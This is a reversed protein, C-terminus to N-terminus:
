ENSKGSGYYRRLPYNSLGVILWFLVFPHFGDPPPFHAFLHVFSWFSTVALTGGAAWLLSKIFLERQFDDTEEKLYLGNVVIIGVLPISPIAAMGLAAPIPLKGHYLVHFTLFVALMYILSALLLRLLYRRVAPSKLNM